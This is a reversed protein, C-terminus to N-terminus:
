CVPVCYNLVENNKVSDFGFSPAALGRSHGILGEVSYGKDRLYATVSTLDEVDEDYRAYKMDGSSDGNGRFDFRYTSGFFDLEKALQPQFLYNKHGLVGHCILIVRKPHVPSVRLIGSLHGGAALPITLQEEM